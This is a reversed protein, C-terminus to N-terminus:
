MLIVDGAAAIDALLRAVRSQLEGRAGSGAVLLAVDLAMVRRGAQRGAVPTSEILLQM